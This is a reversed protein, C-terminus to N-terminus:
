KLLEALEKRPAPRLGHLSSKRDRHDCLTFVSTRLDEVIGFRDVSAAGVHLRQILLDKSDEM